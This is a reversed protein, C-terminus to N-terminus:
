RRKIPGDEPRGLVPLKPAPRPGGRRRDRIHGVWVIALFLIVFFAAMGYFAVGMGIPHSSPADLDTALGSLQPHVVKNDRM